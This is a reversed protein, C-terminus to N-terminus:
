RLVLRRLTARGDSGLAVDAYVRRSALAAGLREAEDEDAYYQEIGFEIQGSRVRGRIYTGGDPRSTTAFSGNWVDGERHLPVYVRTGSAVGDVPGVGNIEYRLAVYQGRFPDRPDVPEVRLLVHQGLAVDAERLGAMAVPVLAQLAVLVWFATRRTM